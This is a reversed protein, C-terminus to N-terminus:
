KGEAKREAIDKEMKCKIGELTELIKEMMTINEATESENIILARILDSISQQRKETLELLMAYTSDDLRVGVFHDKTRRTYEKERAQLM